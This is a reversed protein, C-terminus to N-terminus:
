PRDEGDEDPRTSLRFELVSGGESLEARDMRLTRFDTGAYSPEDSLRQLYIPMQEAQRTRGRLSIHQGGEELSIHTLWVPDIRQRGLAELYRSFGQQQGLEGNRLVNLAQEKVAREAESDQVARRLAPSEERPPLTEELSSLRALAETEQNQLHDVREAMQAYRWQSWVTMLALGLILLGLMMLMTEASFVKRQRRFIPQYLNINQNM